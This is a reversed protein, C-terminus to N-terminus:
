TYFSARDDDVEDCNGSDAGHNNLSLFCSRHLSRVSASHEADTRIKCKPDLCLIQIVKGVMLAPFTIFVPDAMDSHSTQLM